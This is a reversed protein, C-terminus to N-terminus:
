LKNCNPWAGLGGRSIKFAATKIAEEPNFRLDSNPDAPMAQRTTIWTRSTFQFLGGYPGNVAQPNMKSECQAIHKLLQEDVGYEQSYKSFLSNLQENNIIIPTPTPAPPLIPTPSPTPSPKLRGVSPTPRNTPFPSPSPLKGVSLTPLSKPSPPPAIPKKFGQRISIATFALIITSCVFIISLLFIIQVKETFIGKSKRKM